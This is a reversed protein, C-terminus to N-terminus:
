KFRRQNRPIRGAKIGLARASGRGREKAMEESIVANGSGDVHASRALEGRLLTVKPSPNVAFGMVVRSTAGLPQGLM